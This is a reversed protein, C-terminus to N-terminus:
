DGAVQVAASSISVLDRPINVNSWGQESALEWGPKQVLAPFCAWYYYKYKKLDAFTVILFPNLTEVFPAESTSIVQSWIQM